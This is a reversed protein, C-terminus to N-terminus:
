IDVRETMMGQRAAPIMKGCPQGTVSAAAQWVRIAGEEMRSRWAWSASEISIVHFYERGANASLSVDSM